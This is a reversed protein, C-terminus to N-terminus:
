CFKLFLLSNKKRFTTNLVRTGTFTQIKELTCTPTYDWPFTGSGTECGQANLKCPLAIHDSKSEVMQGQAVYDESELLIAYKVLELLDDVLGNGMHM